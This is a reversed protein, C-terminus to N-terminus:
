SIYGHKRALCHVVSQNAPCCHGGVAFFLNISYEKSAYLRCLM